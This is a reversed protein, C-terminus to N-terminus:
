TQWTQTVWEDSDDSLCDIREASSESADDMM